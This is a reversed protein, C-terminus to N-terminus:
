LLSEIVSILKNTNLPKALYRYLHGIMEENSRVLSSVFVVPIHKTREEHLLVSAVQHGNIDPMLIDLFILDPQHTKALEIGDAGTNATCVTYKDTDELIKKYISCFIEDDDILLINKMKMNFEGNNKVFNIIILQLEKSRKSIAEDGM